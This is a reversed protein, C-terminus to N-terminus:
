KVVGVPLHLFAHNQNVFILDGPGNQQQLDRQLTALQDTKLFEYKGLHHQCPFMDYNSFFDVIRNLTYHRIEIVVLKDLASEWLKTMGEIVKDDHGETDIKVFISDYQQLDVQVVSNFTDVIVECQNPFFDRELSAGGSSRPSMYFAQSGAKNSLAIEKVNIESFGNKSLNKRLISCIKPNPEFSYINQQPTFRTALLTYYGINAGVDIFLSRPGLNEIMLAALVDGSRCLFQRHTIDWFNGEVQLTIPYSCEWRNIHFQKEKGRRNEISTVFSRCLFTTIKQLSILTKLLSEVAFYPLYECTKAMYNVSSRAMTKLM